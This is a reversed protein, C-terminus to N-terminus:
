PKAPPSIKKESVFRKHGADWRYGGADWINELLNWDMHVGKMEDVTDSAQLMEGDDIVNDGNQDAWQYPGIQLLNDGSLSSPASRGDPNAM